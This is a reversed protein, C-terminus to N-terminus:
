GANHLLAFVEARSVSARSVSPSSQGDEIARALAIDELAESVAESLLDRQAQRKRSYVEQMLGPPQLQPM